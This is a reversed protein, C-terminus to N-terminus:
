FRCILVGSITGEKCTQGNCCQYGERGNAQLYAQTCNEGDSLCKEEEGCGSQTGALAFAAAAIVIALIAAREFM